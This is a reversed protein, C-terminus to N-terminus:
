DAFLNDVLDDHEPPNLGKNTYDNVAAKATAKMSDSNAIIADFTKWPIRNNNGRLDLRDSVKDVFYGYLSASAAWKLGEPSEEILRADVARGIVKCAEDAKNQDKIVQRITDVKDVKQQKEPEPQPKGFMEDQVMKGIETQYLYDCLPQLFQKDREGCPMVCFVMEKGALKLCLWEYLTQLEDFGDDGEDINSSEVWRCLGQLVLMQFIVAWVPIEKGLTNTVEAIKNKIAQQKDTNDKIFTVLEKLIAFLCRTFVKNLFGGDNGDTAIGHQKLENLYPLLSCKIGFCEVMLYDDLREDVKSVEIMNADFLGKGNKAMNGIVEDIVEHFPEPAIISYNMFQWGDQWQQQKQPEIWEPKTTLYTFYSMTRQIERAQEEIERYKKFDAVFQADDAFGTERLAEDIVVGTALPFALNGNDGLNPMDKTRAQIAKYVKEFEPKNYKGAESDLAQYREKLEAMFADALVQVLEDNEQLVMADHKDDGNLKDVMAQLEPLREKLAKSKPNQWYAQQKLISNINYKM